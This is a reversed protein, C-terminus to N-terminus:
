LVNYMWFVMKPLGLVPIKSSVFKCLFISEVVNKKNNYKNVSDALGIGGSGFGGCLGM